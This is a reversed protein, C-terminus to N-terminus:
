TEKKKARKTDNKVEKFVQKHCKNLYDVIIQQKENADKKTDICFYQYSVLTKKEFFTLIIGDIFLIAQFLLFRIITKIM